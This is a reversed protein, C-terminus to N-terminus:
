EIYEGHVFLKMCDETKPISNIALKLEEDSSITVHDLDEDLFSSIRLIIKLCM